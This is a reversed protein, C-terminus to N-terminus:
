GNSKLAEQVQLIASKSFLVHEHNLLDYVNLSESPVLKVGRLNRASLQLNHNDASDVILCREEVFQDLVKRFDRTKPKELELKDLVVLLNERLKSSLVAKIAGRRKKKPFSYDFDRPKPGFVTGGGRWIPNRISGVRARGTGKQRWPKKGGGSVESRVRTSVTGARQSARYHRVAEWILTQNVPVAFVEDSLELKEVKENKLNKVEVSAM